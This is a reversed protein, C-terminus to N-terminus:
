EELPITHWKLGMEFMRGQVDSRPLVATTQREAAFHDLMQKGILNRVRQLEVLDNPPWVKHVPWNGLLPSESAPWGTIGAVVVGAGLRLFSRRDVTM